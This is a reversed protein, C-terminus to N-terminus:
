IVKAEIGAYTRVTYARGIPLFDRLTDALRSVKVVKNPYIHSRSANADGQWVAGFSAPSDGDFYDTPKYATEVQGAELQIVNGTTTGTVTAQLYVPNASSAIFGSVHYRTWVDTLVIPSLESSTHVNAIEQGATAAADYTNIKLQVTESQGATKARMYVSFTYYRGTEIIGTDATITTVGTPNTTVELMRSGIEGTWTSDAYVGTAGPSVTWLVAGADDDFSPNKLENTKKPKLFVDVARAEYYSTVSSAALSVMDIYVTGAVNFSLEIGAFAAEAPATATYSVKTWTNQAVSTASGATSSSIVEGLYDYWYIKRTVNHGGSRTSNVWASFTYETGAVVPTGSTRPFITGNNVGTNPSGIVLKACYAYDIANPEQVATPTLVSQEVTVAVGDTGRWNGLGKYFTSDQTSLLLNPSVTLTPAFGTLSEVYTEVSKATGKNSFMYVAERILRKQNKTAIYAEPDLGFNVTKLGILEPNLYRGSEEPLVNDALTMIEDLTFSFGQLFRYLDSSTDVVDLPSQTASTFVRPLMDMFKDHTSVLEAGGDTTSNHAKPVITYVDGAVVWVNSFKKQIWIRYYAFRGSVLSIQTTSPNDEFSSLVPGGFTEDWEWLIIGDEETESFGDQSRLLRIKTYDGEPASWSLSVTDYGIAIATLPAVSFALRPAQGYRDQYVAGEPLTDTAGSYHAGKYLAM